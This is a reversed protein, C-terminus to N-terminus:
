SDGAPRVDFSDAPLLCRRRRFAARFTPDFAVTECSAEPASDAGGGTWFPVLGWRMLVLERGAALPAVRVAAVNAGPSLDGGPPGVPVSSLGFLAALVDPPCSLTYRRCM